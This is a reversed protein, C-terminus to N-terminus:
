VRSLWGFFKPFKAALKNLLNKVWQPEPIVYGALLGAFFIVAIELM